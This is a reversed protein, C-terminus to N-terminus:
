YEKKKKTNKISKKKKKRKKKSMRKRKKSKLASTRPEKEVEQSAIMWLENIESNNLLRTPIGEVRTGVTEQAGTDKRAWNNFTEGRRIYPKMSEICSRQTAMRMLRKSEVAEADDKMRKEYKAVKEDAYDSILSRAEIFLEKDCNKEISKLLDGIKEDNKEKLAEKLEILFRMCDGLRPQKPHRWKREM